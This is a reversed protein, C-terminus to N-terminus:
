TRKRFILMLAIVMVVLAAVRLGLSVGQPSGETVESIAQFMVSAGFFLTICWLVTTRDV